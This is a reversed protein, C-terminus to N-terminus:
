ASPTDVDRIGTSLMPIDEGPGSERTKDALAAQEEAMFDVPVHSPIPPLGKSLEYKVQLFYQKPVVRMRQMWSLFHLAAWNRPSIKLAAFLHQACATYRDQRFLSRAINIHLNEDVHKGALELARSYFDVSWAYLKQKRLIIGFENFLHKHKAKCVSKMTMIKLFIKEARDIEGQEVFALASKFLGRMAREMMDVPMSERYEACGTAEIIEEESYLTTKCVEPNPSLLPLSLYDEDDCGCSEEASSAEGAPEEEAEDSAEANEMFPSVYRSYVEPEPQYNGSQLKRPNFPRPKGVPLWLHDDLPQITLAGNEKAEILWYQKQSDEPGAGEIPTSFVNSRRFTLSSGRQYAM